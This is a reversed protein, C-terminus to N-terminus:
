ESGEEFSIVRADHHHFDRILSAAIHDAISDQVLGCEDCEVAYGELQGTPKEGTADKTAM